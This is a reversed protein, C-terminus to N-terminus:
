SSSDLDLKFKTEINRSENLLLNLRQIESALRKIEGM